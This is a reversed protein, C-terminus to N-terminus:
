MAPSRRPVDRDDEDDEDEDTPSYTDIIDEALVTLSREAQEEEGLSEDLLKVVDDNEIAEALDRASSYASIEYHEIRRAAAIIALDRAEEPRKRTCAETVESVLSEIAPCKKGRLDISLLEAIQDLRGVQLETEATHQVLATKLEESSAKKAFMPMAKVLQTEVHYIDKLQDALLETLTSLEM